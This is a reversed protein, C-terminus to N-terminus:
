WSNLEGILQITPNLHTKDLSSKLSELRKSIAMLRYLDYRQLLSEVPLRIATHCDGSASYMLAAHVIALAGNIFDQIRENNVSSVLEDSRIEGILWRNLDNPLNVMMEHSSSNALDMLRFPAQSFWMLEVASQKTEQELWDATQQPKPSDLTLRQCRSIITPMLSRSTNSTLIFYTAAPPEELAKLIANAANLNMAHADHIVVVKTYGLQPKNAVKAVVQRVSDVKIGGASGDLTLWDPHTEAKALECSHCTGCPARDIHECLLLRAIHEAFLSQGIGNAGTVLLAHHFSGSQRWAKAQQYQASLWEPFM